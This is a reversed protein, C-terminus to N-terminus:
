EKAWKRSLHTRHLQATCTQRRGVVRSVAPWNWLSKTSLYGCTNSVLKTFIYIFSRLERAPPVEKRMLSGVSINSSMSGIGQAPLLFSFTNVLNNDTIDTLFTVLDEQERSSNLIDKWRVEGVWKSNGTIAVLTIQCSCQSKVIEVCVCRTNIAMLVTMCMGQRLFWHLLCDSTSLGAIQYWRLM